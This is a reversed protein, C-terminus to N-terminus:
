EIARRVIGAIRAANAMITFTLNKAPLETFAAGDVVYVSTTGFLRGSADTQYPGPAAKMPLTGAYHLSNGMAPYQCLRSSSLYSLRRFAAILRREPRGTSKWDYNIDLAGSQTLRIYNAPDRRGPYFLMVLAMAPSLYRAWMLNASISLPFQFLVDSRLPGTTGYLTGQLLAGTERDDYIVNLQGLAGENVELAAGIRGLRFLPICAMPNDLLPLRSEYDRNSELVIKTSGLAGAALILRRCQFTEFSGTKLNRAIVEVGGPVEQYHSVYYGTQLKVKNRAVLDDLTFVPNYIAPDYPRYFELNDYMYPMRGNHAVTLVALRSRGMTIGQGQLYAKRARYRELIDSALLSIRMPPLLQPEAGFYPELDDRAGSIGIHAAIENYFPELDGAAIPFGDLDRPTFRFVGAGWANALGGLAFSAVAEFNRSQVPMLREWDRVIYSMFPAKLKLSINRKYINHLGEFGSGILEEFLDDRKQRLAYLNGPLDPMFSQRHGVDLLLVNRGQLAYAAFTGAPGSGVIIADYL